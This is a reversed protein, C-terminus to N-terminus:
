LYFLAVAQILQSKKDGMLTRAPTGPTPLEWVNYLNEFILGLQVFIQGKEPSTTPVFHLKLQDAGEM